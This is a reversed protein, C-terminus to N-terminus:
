SRSRPRPACAASLAGTQLIPLMAAVGDDGQSRRAADIARDPGVVVATTALMAAVDAQMQADGARIVADGFGSLSPAGNADFWVLRADISGHSLGARHLRGLEDWISDLLHDDIEDASFESLVRDPRNTVLLADDVTTMGVRVVAPVSM